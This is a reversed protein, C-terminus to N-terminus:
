ASPVAKVAHGALYGRYDNFFNEAFKTMFVTLTDDVFTLQIKLTGVYDDVSYILGLLTNELPWAAASVCQYNRDLVGIRKGAYQDPFLFPGYENRYLRISQEGCGKDYTLTYGDGDVDVQMWKFKFLNEEFEYRVGSIKDEMSSSGKGNPMPISMSGLREKLEAQKEPNEPLPGDSVKKLLRYYAQRLLDDANNIGQNDATTILIADYKPMMFAFQSGMGNCSFGGEKLMWFQFGYGIPNPYGSDAVTTDIQHSTAAEMYERSVLQKGNWEGRQLCFQAFKALDRPTALIGSGTWSRGEPTEVCWIDQSIGLEDLLPRMYELMPKGSLKEVIGCLTVTASTDYHFVTGPKHMAYPANFFSQVFDQTDWDYSGTENFVAMMLLHRVTAEMMYPNPNEPIYEPFIDAVKTDLSLRGETIMMGVAVSTFSKSVSYMRHKRDRDFPPCYGEAAIKGHRLLIASHMVLRCDRLEDLFDIIAQSPIGLSEPSASVLDFM